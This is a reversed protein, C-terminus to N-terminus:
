RTRWIYIDRYIFLVRTGWECMMKGRKVGNFVVGTNRRVECRGEDPHDGGIGFEDVWSVTLLVIVGHGCACM